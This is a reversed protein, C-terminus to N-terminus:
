NKPQSKLFSKVGKNHQWFSGCSLGLAILATVGAGWLFFDRVGWIQTFCIFLFSAWEAWVKGKGFPNARGSFHNKAKPYKEILDAKQLRLRQLVVAMVTSLGMCISVAAMPVTSWGNFGGSILLTVFLAGYAIKDVAADFDAGFDSGGRVRMLQRFKTFGERTFIRGFQLKTTDRHPKARDLTRSLEGDWSDLVYTISMMLMGYSFDGQLFLGCALPLLCVFRFLTLRNPTVCRIEALFMVPLYWLSVVIRLVSVFM